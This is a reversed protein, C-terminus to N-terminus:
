SALLLLMITEDILSERSHHENEEFGYLWVLRECLERKSLSSTVWLFNMQFIGTTPPPFNVGPLEQLVFHSAITLTLSDAEARLMTADGGDREIEFAKRSLSGVAAFDNWIADLTKEPM